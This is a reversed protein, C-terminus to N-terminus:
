IKSDILRITQKVGYLAIFSGFRPGSEAGLLVQYLLKFWAAIEVGNERAIRYLGNQITEASSDKELSSLFDRLQLILEKDKDSPVIYQKHKEIFEKYYQIIGEIMRVFFDCTRLDCHTFKEIYPWIVAPDTSNCANVLNLILGYSISSKAITEVEASHGGLVHYLPNDLRKEETDAAIYQRAYAIYDDVYKPIIEFSLKKAKQPATFMFLKLTEVPAYKLWEDITVGTGKSKSIKKGEEDLFMEYVMQVPAKDCLVKCIKTYLEANIGVDKGFMEFDVDLAAWRMALDPKWQLKCNGDTVKVTTDESTEPDKYTITGASLDRSKVPVQLVIGSRKCIPLFPSYTTQREEGLTPLMLAMIEDYKELVKLLMANFFGNKYYQTASVFEYELGFDDLFKCLRANMNDAYSEHTGFPDPINSLSMGVYKKYESPNPINQPVKRLGDMDDSFCILKTPISSLKQFAKRIMTTRVVECATGIHPLGSPGYGTEFLVYGKEPTKNKIKELITYAQSFPWAKQVCSSM